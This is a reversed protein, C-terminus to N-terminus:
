EPKGNPYILDDHSHPISEGLFPDKLPVLNHKALAKGVVVMFLGVFGLAIPLELIPWKPAYSDGIKPYPMVWLWVEYLQTIILWGCVYQLINNKNKKHDQPLLLLFPIIFKIFPLILLFFGWGNETRQVFWDAAEPINAYWILMFQSFAIYAYFVTFAFVLKGMDHIHKTGVTDGFYGRRKLYLIVLVMVSLGSQFLGAFAYVSFMTSYWHPNFSMIWYWTMYSFGVVFMLLFGASLWINTHFLKYGGVEDQKLSNRRILFYIGAWILASAITTLSIGTFNLFGLKQAVVPDEMAHHHDAWHFLVDVGLLAIAGLIIVPYLFAGMAEPIRRISISWGAKALYQTAIFFPGSLGLSMTFWFGIIYGRWAREASDDGMLLGVVFVVLGLVFLAIGATQFGKPLEFRKPPAIDHHHSSHAM